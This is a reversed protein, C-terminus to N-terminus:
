LPFCICIISLQNTPTYQLTHINFTNVQEFDKLKHSSRRHHIEVHSDIKDLLAEVELIRISANQVIADKKPNHSPNYNVSLLNSTSNHVHKLQSGSQSPGSGFIQPSPCTAPSTVSPLISTASSIANPPSCAATNSKEM